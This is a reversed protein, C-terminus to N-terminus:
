RASRLIGTTLKQYEENGRVIVRNRGANKAEYLAEDALQIAGQPTRGVTPAMFGVGVSLTVSTTVAYGVSIALSKVGLRIREAIDHVDSVPLDYLVLVFEEGGYRAAIV